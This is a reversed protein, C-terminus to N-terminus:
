RPQTVFRRRRPGASGSSRTSRTPSSLRWRHTTHTPRGCSLKAGWLAQRCSQWCATTCVEADGEAETNGAQPATDAPAEQAAQPVFVMREEEPNPGIRGKSAAPRPAAQGPAAESEAQRRAEFKARDERAQAVADSMDFTSSFVAQVSRKCRLMVQFTDQNGRKQEFENWAPWFANEKRPDVYQAAHKFLERARDIEGLEEEMGAFELCMDPVHKEPVASVARKYVDRTKITGFFKKTVRIYREFIDLM